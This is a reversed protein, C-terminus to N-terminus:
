KDSDESTEVNYDYVPINNEIYEYNNSIYEYNNPIHNNMLEIKLKRLEREQELTLILSNLPDYEIYDM